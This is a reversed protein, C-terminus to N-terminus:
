FVLPSESYRNGFVSNCFTIGNPRDEGLSDSKKPLLEDLSVLRQEVSKGDVPLM